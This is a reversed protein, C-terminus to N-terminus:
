RRRRPLTVIKDAAATAREPNAIAKVRGAWLELAERKEDEYEHTDYVGIIGPAAHALVAEAVERPVRLASMGSRVVRRLDHNVWNPLEVAHHDEGRRRAMAKLTRLMRRDLDCKFKTGLTLPRSGGNCSFVYRAGGIRPVEAIIQAVASSFPVLHERASKMRSAPIVAHDGRVEPWTLRAAENLRLGTLLLFRYVPGVPYRM